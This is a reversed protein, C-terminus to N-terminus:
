SLGILSVISPPKRLGRDTSDSRVTLAAGARGANPALRHAVALTALQLRSSIGLKGFISTLHHKVTRESIFLEQGIEKNSHGAAIMAVINHERATLEHWDHSSEVNHEFLLDRLMRVLIVTGDAGLWYQDALASRISNLLEQVPATKQVIGHAALRLAQIVHGEDIISALLIIRVAPWLTVAGHVLGALASDLLLIDPQLQPRLALFESEDSAEGIVGFGPQSRLAGILAVRSGLDTTAIVIRTYPTDRTM